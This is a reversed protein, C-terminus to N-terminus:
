KIRKDIQRIVDDVGFTFVHSAIGISVIHQKGDYDVRGVSVVYYDDVELMHKIAFDASEKLAMKGISKISSDIINSGTGIKKDIAASFVKKIEQKHQSIGPCSISLAIIGGMVLLLIPLFKTRTM